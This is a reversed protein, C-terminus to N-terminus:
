LIVPVESAGSGTCNSGQCSTCLTHECIVLHSPDSREVAPIWLREHNQGKDFYQLQVKEFGNLQEPSCAAADRVYLYVASSEGRPVRYFIGHAANDNERPPWVASANADRRRM